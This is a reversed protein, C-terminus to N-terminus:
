RDIRAASRFKTQEHMPWWQAIAQAVQDWLLTPLDPVAIRVVCRNRVTHGFWEAAGFDFGFSGAHRLPWGERSL